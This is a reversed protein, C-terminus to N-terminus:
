LASFFFFSNAYNEQLDQNDACAFDGAALRAAIDAVERSKLSGPAALAVPLVALIMSFKM